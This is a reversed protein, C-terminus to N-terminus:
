TTQEHLLKWTTVRKGCRKCKYNYLTTEDGRGTGGVFSCNVRVWQHNECPCLREELEAVRNTLQMNMDKLKRKTVM